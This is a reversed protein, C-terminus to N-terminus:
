GQLNLQSTKEQSAPKGQLYTDVVSFAPQRAGPALDPPTSPLDIWQWQAPLPSPAKATQTSSPSDPPLTMHGPSHLPMGPFLYRLVHKPAAIGWSMKGSVPSLYKRAVRFLDDPTLQEIEQIQQELSKPPLHDKLREQLLLSLDESSQEAEHLALINERKVRELDKPDPAQTIAQKLVQQLGQIGERTKDFDLEASIIYQSFQPLDQFDQSTSYVLGKQSRLIEFFPGSMGSLLTLLVRFATFDPSDPTPGEFNLVVNSRNLANEVTLYPGKVGPLDHPKPIPASNLNTTSDGGVAARWGTQRMTSNLLAQQQPLPLASVMVAQVKSPDALSRSLERWVDQPTAQLIAALNSPEDARRLYPHGAGLLAQNLDHSLTTLPENYSDVTTATALQRQAHWFDPDAKAHFLLQNLIRPLQAETGKPGSVGLLLGEDVDMHFEFGEAECAEVFNRTQESGKFLLEPLFHMAKLNDPSAPLLYSLTSRPQTSAQQLTAPMGNQLSVTVPESITTPAQALLPKNQLGLPNAASTTTQRLPPYIAQPTANLSSANM